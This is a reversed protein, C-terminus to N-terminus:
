HSPSGASVFTPATLQATGLAQWTSPTTSPTNGVNVNALSRYYIGQYLVVDTQAYTATAVYTGKYVTVQNIYSQIKQSGEGSPPNEKQMRDLNPINLPM